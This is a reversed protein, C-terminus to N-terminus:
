NIVEYDADIYDDTAEFSSTNTRPILLSMIVIGLIVIQM